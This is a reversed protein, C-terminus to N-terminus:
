RGKLGVPYDYDCAASAEEGEVVGEVEEEFALQEARRMGFLCEFLLQEGEVRDEALVGEALQM